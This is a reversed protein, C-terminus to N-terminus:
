TAPSSLTRHLESCPISYRIQGRVHGQSKFSYKVMLGSQAYASQHILLIIFVSVLIYM